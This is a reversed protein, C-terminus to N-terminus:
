TDSRIPVVKSATAKAPRRGNGPADPGTGHESASNRNRHPGQLKILTEDTPRRERPLDPNGSMARLMEAAAATKVPDLGALAIQSRTTASTNTSEADAKARIRSTLLNSIATIIGPLANGVSGALHAALTAIAAGAAIVTTDPRHILALTALSGVGGGGVTLGIRTPISRLGSPLRTPCM